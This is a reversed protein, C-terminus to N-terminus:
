ADEEARNIDFQIQFRMADLEEKVIDCKALDIQETTFIKELGYEKGNHWETIRLLVKM